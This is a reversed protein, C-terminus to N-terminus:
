PKLKKFAKGIKECLSKLMLSDNSAELDNLM